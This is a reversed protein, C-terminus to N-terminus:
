DSALTYDRINDGLIELVDREGVNKINDAKAFLGTPSLRNIFQVSKDIAPLFIKKAIPQNKLQALTGMYSISNLLYKGCANSKRITENYDAYGYVKNNKTQFQVNFMQFVHKRDLRINIRNKTLNKDIEKQIGMISQNCYACQLLTFYRYATIPSPLKKYNEKNEKLQKTELCHGLVLQSYLGSFMPIFSQSATLYGGESNENLLFFYPDALITINGRQDIENFIIPPRFFLIEESKKSRAKRTLLSPVCTKQTIMNIFHPEILKNIITAVGHRFEGNDKILAEGYMIKRVTTFSVTIRLLQIKKEQNQLREIYKDNKKDTIFGYFSNCFDSILVSDKSLLFHRIVQEKAKKEEGTLLIAKGGDRLYAKVREAKKINEATDQPVYQASAYRPMIGAQYGKFNPDNNTKVSEKLWKEKIKYEDDKEEKFIEEDIPPKSM